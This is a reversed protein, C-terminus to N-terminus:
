AEGELQLVFTVRRNRARGAASANDDRPRTEGYGIARIRDPSIGKEILERTVAAARAASLEWNSPYRATQIPVNDSHGEVSLSYPLTQLLAAVEDLLGTGTESLAASAPAFLISDSIELSVDSNGVVVEIRDQLQSSYLAEMVRDLPAAAPSSAIGPSAPVAPAAAIELPASVAAPDSEAVSDVPEFSAPIAENPTEAPADVTPEPPAMEAPAPPAEHEASAAPGEAVTVSAVDVTEVAQPLLGEGPMAYGQAADFASPVLVQTDSAMLLTQLSFASGTANKTAATALEQEVRRDQDQYALLLVLLTLLLALIDIFSLLWTEQRAATIGGDLEWCLATSDDGAASVGRPSVYQKSAAYDM